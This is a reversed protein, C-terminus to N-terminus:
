QLLFGSVSAMWKEHEKKCLSEHGSQEYVVLKKPGALAQYVADTEVQLVRPDNRGWQLLVPTKIRKAFEAPQHNFAWTGTVVSGWFTVLTGLPEGPRGMRTIRGEAAQHLSAFPMELILKAPRLEPYQDMAATIAAAGMSIGWLIIHQEGRRRIHRYALWIDESEKYGVTSENGSSSGHARFDMLLTHFGLQRFGASEQLVATKRAGHGHFLIVTGRSRVGAPLTAPIYWGELKIGDSTTLTVQEFNSDPQQNQQKYAKAGFLIDRIVPWEKQPQQADAPMEQRDYFHTFKYAHFVTITNLLIFLVLLSRLLIKFTKKM